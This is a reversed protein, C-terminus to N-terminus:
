TVGEYHCRTCTRTCMRRAVWENRCLASRSSLIASSSLAFVELEMVGMFWYMVFHRKQTCGHGYRFRLWSSRAVRSM